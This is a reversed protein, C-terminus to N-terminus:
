LQRKQLAEVTAEAAAEFGSALRSASNFCWYKSRGKKLEAEDNHKVKM